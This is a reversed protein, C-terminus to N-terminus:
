ITVHGVSFVEVVFFFTNETTSRVLPRTRSKAPKADIWRPPMVPLFLRGTDFM